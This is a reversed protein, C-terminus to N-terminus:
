GPCCAAPLQDGEPCVPGSRGRDGSGLPLPQKPAATRLISCPMRPHNDPEDGTGPVHWDWQGMKRRDIRGGEGPRWPQRFSPDPLCHHRSLCDLSDRSGMASVQVSKGAKPEPHACGQSTCANSSHVQFESCERAKETHRDRARELLCFFLVFSFFFLVGCLKAFVHLNIM